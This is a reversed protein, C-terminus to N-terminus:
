SQDPRNSKQHEKKMRQFIEAAKVASGILSAAIELIRLFTNMMHVKRKIEWRFWRRQNQFNESSSGAFPWGSVRKPLGAGFPQNCSIMACPSKCPM